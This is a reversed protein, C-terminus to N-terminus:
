PINFGPFAAPIKNETIRKHMVNKKLLNLDIQILIKECVHPFIRSQERETKVAAPM